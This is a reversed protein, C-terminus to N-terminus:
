VEETRKLGKASSNFGLRNFENSGCALVRGNRKILFSGESGACVSHIGHRGRTHVKQPTAYDDESGLGLKGTKQPAFVM